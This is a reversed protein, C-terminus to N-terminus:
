NEEGLPMLHNISVGGSQGDIKVLIEGNSLKWAVSRTVTDVYSQNGKVSWYRVPTGPPYNINWYYLTFEKTNLNM